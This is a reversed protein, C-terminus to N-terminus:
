NASKCISIFEEAQLSAGGVLGGDIDPQSFLETANVAKVSGGYLIRINAAIVADSKAIHERLVQHIGQAQEATATKGTGIAWIPEYALVSSQLAAIGATNIVADLQALVVEESMGQERQWLSEGLCLIPVLSNEQAAKFKAAVIEDSEGFIERRESHGVLAYRIDYETLMAASVEGTFAGQPESYLNQAALKIHSEKCLEVALGIHLLTPSVVIEIKDRLDATAVAVDKILQEVLQRSGHMKWNGVILKQRM